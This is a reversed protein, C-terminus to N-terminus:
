SHRLADRRTAYGQADDVVCGDGRYVDVPQSRCCAVWDQHAKRLQMASASSTSSVTRNFWGNCMISESDAGTDARRDKRFRTRGM